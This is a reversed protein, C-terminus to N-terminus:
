QAPTPQPQPQPNQSLVEVNGACAAGHACAVLPLESAGSARGQACAVGHDCVHDESWARDMQGVELSPQLVPGCAEGDCGGRGGDQQYRVGEWPGCM